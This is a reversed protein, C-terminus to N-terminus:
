IAETRYEKPYFNMKEQFKEGEFISMQSIWSIWLMTTYPSLVRSKLVFPQVVKDTREWAERLEKYPKNADINSIELASGIMQM